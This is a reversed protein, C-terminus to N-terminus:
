NEIIPSQTKAFMYSFDEVNATNFAVLTIMSLGSNYFLNKMSKVEGTEFGTITFDSLEKCNEFTSIMSKIKANKNSFMIISILSTIDKFMYDMNIEGYILFNIKHEGAKSFQYQKSYNIKVSDIHIDFNGDYIYDSGLIQTQENIKSIYYNCNIEGIIDKPVDPNDKEGDKPTPSPSPTSSTSILVIIIILFIIVAASVGGVILLKKWTPMTPTLTDESVIDDINFDNNM